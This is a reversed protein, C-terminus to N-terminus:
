FSCRLASSSAMLTFPNQLRGGGDAPQIAHYTTELGSTMTLALSTRASNDTRSTTPVGLNWTATVQTESDIVVSDAPVRM